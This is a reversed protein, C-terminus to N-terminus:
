SDGAQRERSALMVNELTSKDREIQDALNQLIERSVALERAINELQENAVKLVERELRQAEIELERLEHERTEREQRERTEREQRERTEHAQPTSTKERPPPTTTSTPTTTFATIARANAVWNNVIEIYLERIEFDSIKHETPFPTTIINSVVWDLQNELNQVVGLIDHEIGFPPAYVSIVLDTEFIPDIDLTIIATKSSEASTTKEEWPMPTHVIVSFEANYIGNNNCFSTLADRVALFASGMVKLRYSDYASTITHTPTTEDIASSLPAEAVTIQDTALIGLPPIPTPSLPTTTFGMRSYKALTNNIVSSFQSFANFTASYTGMCRNTILKLENSGDRGQVWSANVEVVYDAM